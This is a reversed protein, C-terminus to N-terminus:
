NNKGNRGKKIKRRKGGELIADYTARMKLDYELNSLPSPYEDEFEEYISSDFHTDSSRAHEKDIMKIEEISVSPDFNLKELKKYSLDPNKKALKGISKIGDQYGTDEVIKGNDVTNRVWPKENTIAIALTETSLYDEPEYKLVVMWRAAAGPMTQEQIEVEVKKAKVVAM